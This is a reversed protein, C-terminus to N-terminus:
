GEFELSFNKKLGRKGKYSNILAWTLVGLRIVLLTGKDDRMRPRKMGMHEFLSHATEICGRIRLEKKNLIWEPNQNSVGKKKPTLLVTNQSKSLRKQREANVYGKDGFVRHHNLYKELKIFAKSDHTHGPLIILKYPAGKPTMLWHLRFGYFYTKQSSVYGSTAKSRKKRKQMKRAKNYREVAFSDVVLRSQHPIIPQQKQIQKYAM